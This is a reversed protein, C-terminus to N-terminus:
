RAAMEKLTHLKTYFLNTIYVEFIFIFLLFVFHIALTFYQHGLM